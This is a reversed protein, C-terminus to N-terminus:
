KSPAPKATVVNLTTVNLKKDTGEKSSGSVNVGVAVEDFTAEKGDKKIKTDSTVNFTRENIKFTKAQKDVVDVKGRFPTPKATAEKKDAPKEDAAFAPLTVNAAFVAVLIPIILKKMTKNQTSKIKVPQSNLGPVLRNTFM